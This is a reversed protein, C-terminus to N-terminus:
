STGTAPGRRLSSWGAPHRRTSCSGRRKQISCRGHASRATSGNTRQRRPPPARVAAVVDDLTPDDALKLVTGPPRAGVHTHADNIGPVVVRGGLDIVQTASDARQRVAANTGVDVIRDGRVAVAEAWPIRADATFVRGNVLILDPAGSPQSAVVVATTLALALSQLRLMMM